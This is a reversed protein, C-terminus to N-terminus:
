QANSHASERSKGAVQPKRSPSKCSRGLTKFKRKSVMSPYADVLRFNPNEARWALAHKLTTQTGYLMKYGARIMGSVYTAERGMAAALEGKKLLVSM